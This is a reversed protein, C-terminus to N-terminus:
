SIKKTKLLCVLVTVDISSLFGKRLAAELCSLQFCFNYTAQNVGHSCLINNFYLKISDM